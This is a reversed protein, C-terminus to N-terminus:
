NQYLVTCIRCFPLLQSILFYTSQPPIGVRWRLDKLWFGLSAEVPQGCQELRAHGPLCAPSPKKCDGSCLAWDSWFGNGERPGNGQPDSTIEKMWSDYAKFIPLPRTWDRWKTVTPAWWPYPVQEMNNLSNSASFCLSLKDKNVMPAFLWKERHVVIYRFCTSNNLQDGAKPERFLTDWHSLGMLDKGEKRMGWSFVTIKDKTHDICQIRFRYASFELGQVM